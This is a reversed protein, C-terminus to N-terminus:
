QKSLKKSSYLHTFIKRLRTIQTDSMEVTDLPAKM